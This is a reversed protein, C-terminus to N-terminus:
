LNCDWGGGEMNIDKIIAMYYIDMYYWWDESGKQVKKALERAAHIITDNMIRERKLKQEEKERKEKAKKLKYLALKSADSKKQYSGGLFYFATKFDCNDMRQIFSFIDGNAGCAHCHFDKAYIKMSPSRDGTHFPCSIFGARNPHYGYREVISRMSYTSKIEDVTM